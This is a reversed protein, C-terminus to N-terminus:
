IGNPLSASVPASGRMRPLLRFPDSLQPFTYNEPARFIESRTKEISERGPFERCFPSFTLRFRDRRRRRIRPAASCETWTCLFRARLCNLRSSLLSGAWRRRPGSRFLEPRVAKGATRPMGPQRRSQSTATPQEDLRPEEMRRRGTMAELKNRGTGKKELTTLPKKRDRLFAEENANGIKIERYYDSINIRANKGGSNDENRMARLCRGHKRSRTAFSVFPPPPPPPPPPSRPGLGLGPVIM